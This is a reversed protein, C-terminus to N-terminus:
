EKIKFAIEISWKDLDPEIAPDTLYYEFRGGWIEENGQVKKDLTLGRNESWEELLNSTQQIRDPHGKHDIIVYKGEPTTGATVREDGFTANVVPIGVELKFKMNRDSMVWYRFFPAGNPQLGKKKMWEFLEEFLANVKDWEKLTAEIPIAIYSREARAEIRPEIM